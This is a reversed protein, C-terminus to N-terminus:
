CLIRVALSRLFVYYSLARIFLTNSKLIFGRELLQRVRENLAKVVLNTFYSDAPLEKLLFISSM